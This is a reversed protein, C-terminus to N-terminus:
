LSHYWALSKSLSTCDIRQLFSRTSNDKKADQKLLYTVALWVVSDKIMELPPFENHNLWDPFLICMQVIDAAVKPTPRLNPDRKLLQKTLKAIPKPVAMPLPPLSKEEYSSSNFPGKYFPNEEGFIEYVLTGATWIDSKRYDLWANRGPEMVAIEPSMLAANGGKDTDSTNYPIMLGYDPEALCCGFDSIVLQPHGSSVDVLINDSKLDRHAIGNETMHAIGELLQALLSCRTNLNVDNESLFSKLTMDYKKMVLFLTKNRGLGSDPNLRTPLAAPYRLDDSKIKPVDDIFIGQMEVINPHPPLSKLKVQNRTLWISEEELQPTFRAPTIEKMMGRFIVDANSEFDYNFMMKIALDYKLEKPLPTEYSEEITTTTSIDPNNGESCFDPSGPIIEIDDDSEDIVEFSSESDTLEDTSFSSEENPVYSRIQENFDNQFRAEYVASNCGQGILQGIQFDKFAATSFNNEEQSPPNIKMSIINRISNTVEDDEQAAATSLMAAVFSFIPRRNRSFDIAARNRLERAVTAVAYRSAFRRIASPQKAVPVFANKNIEISKQLIKGGHEFGKVKRKLINELFLRGKILWKKVLFNNNLLGSGPDALTQVLPGFGGKAFM